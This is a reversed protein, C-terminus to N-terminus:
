INNHALGTSGFGGEGRSSDGLDNVEQIEAQEYRALIIQAIKEGKKVEYPQDSTNFILIKLEGRYGSDLTGPTNLLTLGHNLALGSKPRVQIEFGKPIEFSIGTPVLIRKYHMIVIDETSYVDMGSDGDHAYHPIIADSHLKKIKIPIVM